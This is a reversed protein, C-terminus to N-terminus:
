IVHNTYDYAQITYNNFYCAKKITLTYQICRM